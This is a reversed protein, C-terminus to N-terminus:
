GGVTLPTGKQVVKRLFEDCFPRKHVYYLIAHQRDLKVEVMHGSTMRGGKALSHILTEDLDLILTKQSPNKSLLPRPPGTNRPYKTLRLGSPSSPSKVSAPKSSKLNSSENLLRIRISRRPVVADSTSDVASKSRLHHHLPQTIVASSTGSTYSTPENPRVPLLSVPPPTRRKKPPTAPPPISKKKIQLAQLIVVSLSFFPMIVSFKGGEDYFWSATWALFISIAMTVWRFSNIWSDLVGRYFKTLLSRKQQMNEKEDTGRAPASDVEAAAFDGVSASSSLPSSSTTTGDSRLLREATTLQQQQQRLDSFADSSPTTPPTNGIINDVRSSLISLSNM